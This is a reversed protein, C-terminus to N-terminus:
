KNSRYDLVKKLLPLSITGLVSLIGLVGLLKFFSINPNTETIVLSILMISIFVITIFVANRIGILITKQTNLLFLLSAHSFAVSLITFVIATKIWFTNNDWFNYDVIDWIILIWVLLSTFVIGMGLTSFIKRRCQSYISACIMGALSHIAMVNTTVLINSELDNMEGFLVIYIGLLAGVSLAVLFLSLFIKTYNM